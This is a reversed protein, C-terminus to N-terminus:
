RSGDPRGAPAGLACAQANPHFHLMSALNREFQPLVSSRIPTQRDFSMREVSSHSAFIVVELQRQFQHLLWCEKVGYEAFWGLREDLKGIRPHPSLIEVVLDPAGRVRDTVIHRRENSVFFLDPQLILHRQADLIVDLPSIWVEGLQNDRVHADLALFVDRVAAQHPVLPADAVRLVGYILETPLLSEPTRLYEATTMFAQRAM